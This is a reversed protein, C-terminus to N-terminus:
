YADRMGARGLCLLKTIDILFREIGRQRNSERIPNPMKDIDADRV